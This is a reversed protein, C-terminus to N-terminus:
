RPFRGLPIFFENQLSTRQVYHKTNGGCSQGGWFFDPEGEGQFNPRYRKVSPDFESRIKLSLPTLSLVSQIKLHDVGAAQVRALGAVVTAERIQM